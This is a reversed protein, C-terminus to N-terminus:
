KILVKAAELAAILEHIDVMCGLPSKDESSITVYVSKEGHSLDLELTESDGDVDKLKIIMM